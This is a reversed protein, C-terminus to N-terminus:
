NTPRLQSTQSTGLTAISFNDDHVVYNSKHLQTTDPAAYMVLSGRKLVNTDVGTDFPFPGGPLSKGDVVFSYKRSAFDVDIALTHWAGLSVPKSTLFAPVLVNGSHGYVVGDSSIDLEGIGPSGGTSSNGVAALGASFFNNCPVFKGTVCDEASAGPPTKPGDIRVNAQVRVIPFGAAGVDFNVPKRYSGIADYYGGTVENIFDQHELDQGRVRVSQQGSFVLDNSIVAANPSLISVPPGWGDQGLVPQGEVAHRFNDCQDQDLRMELDLEGWTMGAVENLRAGALILLRISDRFPQSLTDTASWLTAIEDDNLARDRPTEVAPAHVGACPNSEVIEQEVCWAFFLRAIALTRNALVPARTEVREILERVDRRKVDAVRRGKLAPLVEKTLIRTAQKVTNARRRSEYKALFLALAADITNEDVPAAKRAAKKAGAPDDQGIAKKALRRAEALSIKPYPGLTFKRNKGGVRYRYAWSTKGSPQLVFYLGAGDPIERHKTSPKLNEITKQTLAKAM